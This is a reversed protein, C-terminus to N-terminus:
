SFDINFINKDEDIINYPYILWKLEVPKPGNNVIKIIKRISGNCNLITGM